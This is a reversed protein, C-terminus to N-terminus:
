KGQQEEWALRWSDYAEARNSEDVVLTKDVGDRDLITFTIEDQGDDGMEIVCDIPTIEDRLFHWGFHTECAPEYCNCNRRDLVIKM